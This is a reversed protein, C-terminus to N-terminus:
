ASSPMSSIDTLSSNLRTSKRDLRIRHGCAPCRSAPRAIGLVGQGSLSKELGDGVRAFAAPIEQGFVRKFSAADALQAAVDGWWQRELMLPLRHVLVNLFSGILLGLVGLAVPSLLLPLPLGALWAQLATM